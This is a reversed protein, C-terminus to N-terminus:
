LAEFGVNFFYSKKKSVYLIYVLSSWIEYQFFLKKEQFCLTYINFPKLDWM